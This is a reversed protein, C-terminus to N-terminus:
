RALLGGFLGPVGFKLVLITLIVTLVATVIATMFLTGARPTADVRNRLANIEGRIAAHAAVLPSALYIEAEPNGMRGLFNRNMTSLVRDGSAPISGQTGLCASCGPPSIIAGARFVRVGLREALHEAERLRAAIHKDPAIVSHDFFIGVRDRDFVGSFGHKEFLTAITPSNGDQLYVRDVKATVLEGPTVGDRGAHSAIIQEVLAPATM